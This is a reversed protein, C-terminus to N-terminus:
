IKDSKDKKSSVRGFSAKTLGERDLAASGRRAASGDSIM